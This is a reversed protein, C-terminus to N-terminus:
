GDLRHRWSPHPARGLCHERYPEFKAPPIEEAQETEPHTVLIATITTTTIFSRACRECEARRQDYAAFRSPSGVIRIRDHGCAPCHM